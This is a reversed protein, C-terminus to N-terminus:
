ARSSHVVQDTGHEGCQGVKSEEQHWGQDKSLMAHVSNTNGGDAVTWMKSTAPKLKTMISPRPPGATQDVEDLVVDSGVRLSLIAEKTWSQPVPESPSPDERAPIEQECVDTWAHM